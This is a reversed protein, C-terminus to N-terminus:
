MCIWVFRTWGLFFLKKKLGDDFLFFAINPSFKSIGSVGISDSDNVKGFIGTPIHLMSSPGGTKTGGVGVRTPTQSVIMAPNASQKFCPDTAIRGIMDNIDNIDNM